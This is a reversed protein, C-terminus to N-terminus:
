DAACPNAPDQHITIDAGPFEERIAAAVAAAAAHADKLAMDGDMELHLQIIERRGSRRTRIDHVGRVDPHAVALERVRQRVGESLERDM